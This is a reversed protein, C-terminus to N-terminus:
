CDDECCKLHFSASELRAPVGDSAKLALCTPAIVDAEYPHDSTKNFRVECFGTYFYWGLMVAVNPKKGEREIGDGERLHLRSFGTDTDPHEVTIPVNSLDFYPPDTGGASCSIDWEDGSKVTELGTNGTDMVYVLDTEGTVGGLMTAVARGRIETSEGCGVQALAAALMPALAVNRATCRRLSVVPGLGFPNSMAGHKRDLM